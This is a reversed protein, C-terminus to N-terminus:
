MSHMKHCKFSNHSNSTFINRRENDNDIKIRKKLCM